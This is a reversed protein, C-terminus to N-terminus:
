RRGGAVMGNYGPTPFRRFRLPGTDCHLQGATDLSALISGVTVLLFPGSTSRRARTDRQPHLREVSDNDCSAGCDVLKGRELAVRTSAIAPPLSVIKFARSAGFGECGRARAVSSSAIASQCPM